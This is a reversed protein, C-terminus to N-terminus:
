EACIAYSRLAWNATTGTEDEAGIVLVNTLLSSPRLNMTNGLGGVIEGGLGHVRFGSSCAAVLSKNLSNSASTAFARHLGFPPNACIAYSTVLWTGSAGDDDEAGTVAVSTLASNPILDDIVVQGGAGGSISAGTGFVRKGAPCSATVGKNSSNAVRTAGVRQLGSPPTACIAYARVSWNATTGTDDELGQVTVNTLTSGPIIDDVVLQGTAGITEGGAGVVRKGSPCSAVVPKNSSNSASTATVLELGPIASAPAATAFGALVAIVTGWLLRTRLRKASSARSLGLKETKSKM